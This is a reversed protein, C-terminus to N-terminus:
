AIETRWYIPILDGHRTDPSTEIQDGIFVLGPILDTVNNTCSSVFPGPNIKSLPDM